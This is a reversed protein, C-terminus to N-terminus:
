TRRPGSPWFSRGTGVPPHLSQVASISDTESMGNVVLGQPIQDLYLTRDGARAVAIRDPERM